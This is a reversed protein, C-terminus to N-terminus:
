SGFGCVCLFFFFFFFFFHDNYKIGYRCFVCKVEGKYGRNLLKRGTALADKIVLWTM